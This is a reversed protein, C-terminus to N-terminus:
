HGKLSDGLFELVELSVGGGVARGTGLIVLIAIVPIGGDYARIVTGIGLAHEEQVDEERLFVGEFGGFHREDSTDIM